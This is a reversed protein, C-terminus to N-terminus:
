YCYCILKGGINKKKADVHSILGQNTSVILMGFGRAPLYRKEALDFNERKVSFRPKIVGINNITGLLNIKLMGGRGNDIEEFGGLYNHENLISLIKRIVKSNNTTQLEKKGLSEYKKIMSLVNALPDNLSM